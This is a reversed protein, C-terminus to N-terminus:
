HIMKMKRSCNMCERYPTPPEDAAREQRVFYNYNPTKCCLEDKRQEARWRICVTESFLPSMNETITTTLTM